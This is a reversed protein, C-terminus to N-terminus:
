TQAQVADKSEKAILSRMVDAGAKEIELIISEAKDVFINYMVLAPIAIALGTATTILAEAIGGSFEAVQGLGVERIRNFVRIMGLVTGFLGLLPSISAITRLGGLYQEVRPVEYRGAEEIAERIANEGSGRAELARGVINTFLNRNGACHGEARKLEGSDIMQKLLMVENRDIFRRRRLDYLKYFIIALALLSCFALPVMTIGGSLFTDFIM